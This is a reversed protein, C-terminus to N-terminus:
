PAANGFISLSRYSEASARTLDPGIPKDGDMARIAGDKHRGIFNSSIAVYGADFDGSVGIGIRCNRITNAVCNVDGQQAGTGIRIGIDMSEVINGSVQTEREVYIGAGEGGPTAAANGLFGGAVLNGSVTGVLSTPAKGALVHIGGACGSVLNGAVLVGHSAEVLIAASQSQDLRNGAIMPETCARVHIGSGKISIFHNDRLTLGNCERASVADGAIWGFVCNGITGRCKHLTLAAGGSTLLQCDHLDIGGEEIAVLGADGSAISEREFTLGALRVSALQPAFRVLDTKGALKLRTGGPVGVLHVAGIRDKSGRVELNGIVFDGAPLALPQNAAVAAELAKLLRASEDGGSNPRIGFDAAALAPATTSAAAPAAAPSTFGGAALGLGGSLGATMLDRRTPQM